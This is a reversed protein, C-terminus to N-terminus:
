IIGEDKLIENEYEKRYIEIQEALKSINIFDRINLKNNNLLKSCQNLLFNMDNLKGGFDSHPENKILRFKRNLLDIEKSIDDYKYTLKDNALNSKDIKIRNIDSKMSVIESYIMKMMESDDLGISTNITAASMKILSILSNHSTGQKHQNYTEKLMKTIIEQDQLVERYILNKRYQYTNINGIDFIDGPNNDGVLVVPKDFAQRIGLEYMVNPNKASLDCIAMPAEILRKIIELHIVSSSQSDDARYPTFGADEIAKKFIDNYVSKFHGEDYGPQNAIPMIVFCELTEVEKSKIEEKKNEPM